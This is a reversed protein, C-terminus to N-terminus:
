PVSQPPVAPNLFVSVSLWPFERDVIEVLSARCIEENPHSLHSGIVVPTEAAVGASLLWSAAAPGHRIRVPKGFV